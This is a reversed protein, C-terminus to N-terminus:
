LIFEASDKDLYLRACGHTRLISAPLTERIEGCVTKQVAEAKTKCPVMCFVKAASMLVPVTLTLAHRPVDGLTAFCGDNVQQCRCREDLEVQKMMCIDDFKAIHPDNFAIHGNEGIGMFVIDVPNNRLLNSYRVIEADIDAANGQIYSVSNFPVKDFVANKLFNGFRQPAADSLGIYEDMHFANVRNWEIEENCLAALFDNQSPAAAFIVNCEAKNALVERLAAAAEKAANEGMEARTEFIKVQLRGADFMKIM